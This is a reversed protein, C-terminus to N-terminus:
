RKFGEIEQNEFHHKRESPSREENEDNGQNPNRLSSYSKPKKDFVKSLKRKITILSLKRKM